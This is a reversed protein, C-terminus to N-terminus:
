NIETFTTAGGMGGGFFFNYETPYKLDSDSVKARYELELKVSSSMPSGIKSTIRSAPSRNYKGFPVMWWPLVISPSWESCIVTDHWCSLLQPSRISFTIYWYCLNKEYWILSVGGGFSSQVLWAWWVKYSPHECNSGGVFQVMVVVRTIPKTVM